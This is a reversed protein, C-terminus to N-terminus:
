MEPGQIGRSLEGKLDDPFSLSIHLARYPITGANISIISSPMVNISIDILCTKNISATMEQLQRAFCDTVSAKVKCKHFVFLIKWVRM